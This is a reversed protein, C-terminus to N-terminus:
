HAKRRIKKKKVLEELLKKIEFYEFAGKKLQEIIFKITLWTWDPVKGRYGKLHSVSYNHGKKNIRLDKKVEDYFKQINKKSGDAIVDVYNKDTPSNHPYTKVHNNMGENVLGIRFGVDQVDGRVSFRKLM